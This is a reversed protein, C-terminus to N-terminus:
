YTRGLIAGLRKRADALTSKVTGTSCKMLSAVDVVPLDAYYFLEVALRQRASLAEVARRLDLDAHEDARSGSAEDPHPVLEFHGNNSRQRRRHKRAQDVVVAILWARATGRDPDFQHRKRWAAALAEQLVDEGDTSGSMSAAVRHLVAWHPELWAAFSRADADDSTWAPDQARRGVVRTGVGMVVGRGALGTTDRSADDGNM